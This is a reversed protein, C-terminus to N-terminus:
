ERDGTILPEVECSTVKCKDIEGIRRTGAIMPAWYKANEDDTAEFEVVVEFTGTMKARYKM